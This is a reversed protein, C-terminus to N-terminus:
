QQLKQLIWERMNIVKQPQEPMEESVPEPEVVIDAACLPCKQEIVRVFKACAPCIEFPM